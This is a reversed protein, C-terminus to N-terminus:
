GEGEYVRGLIRHGMVDMYQIEKGAEIEAAMEQPIPVEFTEYSSLDMLQATNGTVSVIQARKREVIPVEVDGDSPKMLTHKSEDVLSIAVVNIKAAGHKGPKSKDMSVVRCPHDDIIVYKGIKLDGMQAFIRDVGM